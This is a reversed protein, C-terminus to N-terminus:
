AANLRTNLMLSLAETGLRQEADNFDEGAVDSVWYPKGIVKAINLGADDNDAIVFCDLNRAINAMNSASFAVHITYRKNLFRMVRRVSLATAYGECM